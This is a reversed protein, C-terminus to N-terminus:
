KKPEAPHAGNAPPTWPLAVTREKEPLPQASSKPRPPPPPPPSAAPKSPIKVEHGCEVCDVLMGAAAEDIIM